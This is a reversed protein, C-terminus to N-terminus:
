CKHNILSSKCFMNVIATAFTKKESFMVVQFKCFKLQCIIFSSNEVVWRDPQSLIKQLFLQSIHFSFVMGIFIYIHIYVYIYIYVFIYIYM